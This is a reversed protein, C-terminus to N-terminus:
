LGMHVGSSRDISILSAIDLKGANYRCAPMNYGPMSCYFQQPAQGNVHM